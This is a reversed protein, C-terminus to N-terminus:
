KKYPVPIDYKVVVKLLWRKYVRYLAKRKREINGKTRFKSLLYGGQHKVLKSNAFRENCTLETFFCWMWFGVRQSKKLDALTWRCWLKHKRVTLLVGRNDVVEVHLTNQGINVWRSGRKLIWLSFSLLEKKTEAVFLGHLFTKLVNRAM